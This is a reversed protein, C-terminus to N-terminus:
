QVTIIIKAGCERCQSYRMVSNPGTRQTRYARLKTSRCAPCRPATVLLSYRKGQDPESPSLM